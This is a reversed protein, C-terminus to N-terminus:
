KGAGGFKQGYKEITRRFFVAVCGITVGNDQQLLVLGDDKM